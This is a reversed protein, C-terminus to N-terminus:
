DPMLLTGQTRAAYKLVIEEIAYQVDSLRLIKSHYKWLVLQLVKIAAKHKRGEDSTDEDSIPSLPARGQTANKVIQPHFSSIERFAFRETKPTEPVEFNTINRPRVGVFVTYSEGNDPDIGNVTSFYISKPPDFDITPYIKSDTSSSRELAVDVLVKKHKTGFDLTHPWRELFRALTFVAQRFIISNRRVRTHALDFTISRNGEELNGDKDKGKRFRVITSPVNNVSDTTYVFTTYKFAESALIKNVYSSSEPEKSSPSRRTRIRVNDLEDQFTVIPNSKHKSTTTSKLKHKSTLSSKGRDKFTPTPKLQPTGIRNLYRTIMVYWASHLSPCCAVFVVFALSYILNWCRIGGYRKRITWNFSCRRHVLVLIVSSSLRFAAFSLYTALCAAKNM